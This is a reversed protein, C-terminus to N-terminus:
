LVDIILASIEVTCRCEKALSKLKLKLQLLQNSVVKSTSRWFIVCVIRGNLAPEMIEVICVIIGKSILAVEFRRKM